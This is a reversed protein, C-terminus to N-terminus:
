APEADMYADNDYEITVEKPPAVGLPAEREQEAELAAPLRDERAAGRDRPQSRDRLDDAIQVRISRRCLAHSRRECRIGEVSCAATRGKTRQRSLRDQLLQQLFQCRSASMCDDADVRQARSRRGGPM